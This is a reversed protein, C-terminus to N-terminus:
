AAANRTESIWNLRVVARWILRTSAKGTVNIAFAQAATDVTITADMTATTEDVTVHYASGVLQVNGGLTRRVRARVTYSAGETPTQGYETAQIDAEIQVSEGESVFIKGLDLPTADTTVGTLVPDNGNAPGPLQRLEDKIAITDSVVGAENATGVLVTGGGAAVTTVSNVSLAGADKVSVGGFFSTTGAVLSQNRFLVTLTTTSPTVLTSLEVQTTSATAINALNTSGEWLSIDCNATGARIKGSVVLPKGPTVTVNIREEGWATTSTQTLRIEGGILTPTANSAAWGTTSTFPGGPNSVKEAGTGQGSATIRGVRRLGAFQDAGDGEGGTLVGTDEDMALSQVNNSSGGLFAKANAQFLVAEDAYMRRIQAPTPAYAMFRPLAVGEGWVSGDHEKGVRTVASTNNLSGMGAASASALLAGDVWLEATNTARRLVGVALHWAGATYATNSNAQANVTGDSVFFRILGGTNILRVSTGSFAGGTYYARMISMAGNFWMAWACDGTGVDMDPNYPQELYGNSWFGSLAYLDSGTAVPNRLLVGNVIFGRSKYSRDAIALRGSVKFFATGTTGVALQVQTTSSAATFQLQYPTTTTASTSVEVTSTGVAIVRAASSTGARYTGLLIYTQGPITPISQSIVGGAATATNCLDGGSVSPTANAGTWGAASSGDGNVILEDSGTVADSYLGVKRCSVNDFKATDGVGGSSLQLNVMISSSTPVVTIRRTTLTTSSETRFGLSPSGSAGNDLVNLYANVTGKAMDVSITYPTNPTVAIIQSNYGWGSAQTNTVTLVGASVSGTGQASDSWGTKGNDFGGNIALEGGNTGATGAGETVVCLRTDGPMWGTTYFNTINAFMSSAPNAPDDAVITLGTDGGRAWGDSWRCLAPIHAATATLLGPTTGPLYSTTPIAGAAYPIPMRYLVGRGDDVTRRYMWLENNTLACRAHGGITTVSAILGTPHIVSTGGATAAAITPIPLRSVPDLPAGPLVRLDVGTVARSAIGGSVPPVSVYGVNRYAIPDPFRVLNSQDYMWSRDRTFDHLYLGGYSANNDGIVLYGGRMVASSNSNGSGRYGRTGDMLFVMWMRPSGSADLDHLDYIIVRTTCAVVLAVVPFERKAGRTGTNLTEQYWSSARALKGKRWRGFDWDKRTDYVFQSVVGTLAYQTAVGNADWASALRYNIAPIIVNSASGVSQQAQVASAASSDRASQAQAVLGQVTTQGQTLLTQTAARTTEAAAASGAAATAFNGAAVSKASLDTYVDGMGQAVTGIDQICPDWNTAMADPGTLGGPNRDQSYEDGNYFTLLRGAAALMSTLLSM